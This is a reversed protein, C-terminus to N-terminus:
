RSVTPNPKADPRKSQPVLSHSSTRPSRIACLIEYSITHALCAHDDATINDGLLTVEDGPKAHPIHTVDITTLNMSIRGVIPAKQNQVIVWGGPKTDTSSLERRLGDSYGVPLLAIRMPQHATYTANYGITDGRDIDQLSLIRTKWTLVPQLTPQLKPHCPTASDIPLCYGYLAIGPRVMSKANVTAALKTLWTLNEDPDYNDLLSSNGAHIWQPHFGAATIATLAEEFRRRQTRTHPSAAVEPEAFHTLVGELHLLPQRKLWQLLSHLHEGPAIGQRAMGTDIELHIPLPAPHGGYQHVATALSELQHQQWVVPTLNNHIITASEEPLTGCMVLIRPQTPIGASTLAKRIAEGESADAIGLWDAGARALIPACLAANHGYANAKIIPLITTDPGAAATLTKYNTILRHKSIEVWTKV